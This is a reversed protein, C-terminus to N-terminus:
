HNGLRLAGAAPRGHDDSHSGLIRLLAVNPENGFVLDPSDM